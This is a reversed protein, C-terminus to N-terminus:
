RIPCNAPIQYNKIVDHAADLFDNFFKEGNFKRGNTVYPALIDMNSRTDKVLLEQHKTDFELNNKIKDDLRLQM